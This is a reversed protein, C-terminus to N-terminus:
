MFLSYDTSLYESVLITAEPGMVKYYISPFFTSVTAAKIKKPELIVAPSPLPVGSWYEQRSLEM